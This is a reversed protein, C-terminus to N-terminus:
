DADEGGGDKPRDVIALVVVVAVATAPVPVPVSSSLNADIKDDDEWPTPKDRLCQDCRHPAGLQTAGSRQRRRGCCCGLPQLMSGQKGVIVMTRGPAPFWLM